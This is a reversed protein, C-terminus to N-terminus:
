LAVVALPVYMEAESVGGHVGIHQYPKEGLIWDKIVYNEKMALAYHGIRDPLRRDPEGLGFYGERMLEESRWLTTCYALESTVYDDFQQRRDPHVYCYALRPEGCLPLILTEELRPHDALQIRRAPGTDIFGHDATIILLTDSGGLTSLLKTMAGDLDAFHRSVEVSGVGYQHALSDFEPWYAYIYQRSTRAAVIAALNACCEALSRYPRIEARGSFAQNFDSRAIRGPAVVYSRAPIRDVIPSQSTLDGPSIGTEGLPKGGYRAKFPLVALISGVERFWTFWGTFGHQQPAAGTFFCPIATATTPPFTTTIRAELHDHMRSGQGFRCLYDYGLGDVVLLIISKADVMRTPPLAALPDYLSPSGDLAAVISSMLNIISGGRYQPVIM